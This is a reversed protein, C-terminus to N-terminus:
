KGADMAFHRSSARYGLMIEGEDASCWMRKCFLLAEEPLRAVWTLALIFGNTGIQHLSDRRRFCGAAESVLGSGKANEAPAKTMVHVAIKEAINGVAGLRLWAFVGHPLADDGEALAVEGLGIGHHFPRVKRM